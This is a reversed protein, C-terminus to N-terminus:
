PRGAGARSTKSRSTSMDDVWWLGELPMVGYDIRKTGRKVAFRVRYSVAFLAEVAGVYDPSTNPDGIGDVMLFSLEPVDVIVPPGARLGYLEQIERIYDLKKSSNSGTGEMLQRGDRIERAAM